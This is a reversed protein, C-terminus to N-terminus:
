CAHEVKPVHIPIRRAFHTSDVIKATKDLTYSFIYQWIYILNLTCTFNFIESKIDINVSPFCNKYLCQIVYLILILCDWIHVLHLLKVNIHAWRGKNAMTVKSRPGHPWQGQGCLGKVEVDSTLYVICFGHLDCKQCPSRSRQGIVKVKM